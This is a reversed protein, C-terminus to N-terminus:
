KIVELLNKYNEIVKQNKKPLRNYVRKCRAIQFDVIETIDPQNALKKLYVCYVMMELMRYGSDDARYTDGANIAYITGATYATQEDLLYSPRDQYDRQSKILYLNYIGGRYKQPINNALNSMSLTKRNLVRYGINNLVYFCNYKGYKGVQNLLYNSCSHCNEHVVTTLDSDRFDNKCHSSIDNFTKNKHNIRRIPPFILWDAQCPQIFLLIIVIIKNKM